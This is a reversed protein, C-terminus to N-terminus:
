VTMQGYNSESRLRVFGFSRWRSRREATQRGLRRAPWEGSGPFEDGARRGLVSAAAIFRSPPLEGGMGLAQSQLRKPCVRCQDSSEQPRQAVAACRGLGETRARRRDPEKVARGSQRRRGILPHHAIQELACAAFVGAAVV